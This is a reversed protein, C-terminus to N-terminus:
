REHVESSSPKVGFGDDGPGVRFVLRRARFARCNQALHARLESLWKLRLLVQAPASDVLIEVRQGDVEGLRCHMRFEDDVFVSVARRIAARAELVERREGLCAGVAVTRSRIQRNRTIWELPDRRPRM